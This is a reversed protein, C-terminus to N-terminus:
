PQEGPLTLLAAATRATDQILQEADGLSKGLNGSIQKQLGKVQQAKSGTIEGMKEQVEGAAITAIGKIQNKNM